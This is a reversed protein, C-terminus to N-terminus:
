KKVFRELPEKRVSLALLAHEEDELVLVYRGPAKKTSASPQAIRVRAQEYRVTKKSVVASRRRVKKRVGQAYRKKKSPKTSSQTTQHKGLEEPPASAQALSSSKQTNFALTLLNNKASNSLNIRLLLITLFM